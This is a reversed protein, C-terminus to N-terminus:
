PQGKRKRFADVIAEYVFVMFLLAVLWSGIILPAFVIFWIVVRSM